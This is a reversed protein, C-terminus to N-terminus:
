ESLSMNENNYEENYETVYRKVLEYRKDILEEFEKQLKRTEFLDGATIKELLDLIEKSVDDIEQKLQERQKDDEDPM